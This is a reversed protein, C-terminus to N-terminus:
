LVITAMAIINADARHWTVKKYLMSSFNAPLIFFAKQVTPNLANAAGVVVMATCQPYRFHHKSLNSPPQHKCYMTAIHYKFFVHSYM